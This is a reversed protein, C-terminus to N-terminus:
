VDEGEFRSERNKARHRELWLVAWRQQILYADLYEREGETLLAEYEPTATAEGYHLMAMLRRYRIEESETMVSGAGSHTM